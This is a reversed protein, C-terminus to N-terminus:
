EYTDTRALGAAGIAPLVVDFLTERVQDFLLPAKPDETELMVNVAFHDAEAIIKVTGSHPDRLVRASIYEGWRDSEREIWRWTGTATLRTLMGEITLESRFTYAYGKRMESRWLGIKGIM